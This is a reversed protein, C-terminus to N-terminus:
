SQKQFIYISVGSEDFDDEDDDNHDPRIAKVLDLGHEKAEDVLYEELSLWKRTTPSSPLAARPVHSLIFTGQSILSTIVTQLLPIWSGIDYLVDTAFVTEFLKPIEEAASSSQALLSSGWCLEKVALNENKTVNNIECNQQCLKLVSESSDTMVINKITPFQLAIAIGSLGTGCGLELVQRNVFYEALNPLTQIFFRSGTWVCHGTADNTGWSLDIMDLPTLSSTYAIKVNTGNQLTIEEYEEHRGFGGNEVMITSWDEEEIAEDGDEYDDHKVGAVVATTTLSREQENQKEATTTVDNEKPRQKDAPPTM